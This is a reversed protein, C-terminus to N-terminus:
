AKSYTDYDEKSKFEFINTIAINGILPDELRVHNRVEVRNPFGGTQTLNGEFSEAGKAASYTILFYRM